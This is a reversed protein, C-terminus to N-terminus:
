SHLFPDKYHDRYVRWYFLNAMGEKKALGLFIQLYIGIDMTHEMNKEM